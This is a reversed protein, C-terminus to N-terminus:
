VEAPRVKTICPVPDPEDEMMADPNEARRREREINQAAAVVRTVGRTLEHQLM